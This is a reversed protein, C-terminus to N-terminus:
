PQVGQTVARVLATAWKASLPPFARRRIGPSSQMVAAFTAGPGALKTASPDRAVRQVTVGPWLEVAASDLCADLAPTSEFIRATRGQLQQEAWAPGGGFDAAAAGLRAEMNAFCAQGKGNEITIVIARQNHM